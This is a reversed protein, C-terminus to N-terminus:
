YEFLWYRAPEGPHDLYGLLPQSLSPSPLYGALEEPPVFRLEEVGPDAECSLEGSIRRVMFACTLFLRRSVASRAEAVFALDLVEVDLGTEEKFERVLAEAVGEGEDARGGPLTWVLPKGTFWRNGSLLLKGDEVLIGQGVRFHQWGEHPSTEDYTM